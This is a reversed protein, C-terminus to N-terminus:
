PLLFEKTLYERPIEKETPLYIQVPIDLTALYQCLIPGVEQWELWGLGCGLAPLALSQIGEKRYNEQIWQLGKEIGPLDARLRWHYKTPFLLYWTITNVNPLTFPEDALQVEVSNERKYLYPKGLQLRSKRCLEQYYVYAGPFLYKARSAVGKGMVGVCNVSITLTHMRSFFMDGKILSLYETLQIQFEPRFFMYPDPIINVGNLEPVDRLLRERLEHSAVYLTTILGPSVSDPVLCEAMSLRKSDDVDSWWERDIYKKLKPIQRLGDNRSVIPSRDSGAGGLAIYIDDRNLLTPSVCLIAIEESSKELLVRYLMANRPQFFLNAFSWLSRGDPVKRERRGAVITKDYIPTFQIGEREIREHCFIGHRLISPLNDTHTIYFLGRYGSALPRGARDTEQHTLLM